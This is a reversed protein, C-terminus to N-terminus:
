ASFSITANCQPPMTDQWWAHTNLTQTHGAYLGCMWWLLQEFLGLKWIWVHGPKQAVNPCCFVRIWSTLRLGQPLIQVWASLSQSRYNGAAHMVVTWHPRCIDTILTIFTITNIDNSFFFILSHPYWTIDPPGVLQSKPSLVNTSGDTHLCFKFFLISYDTCNGLKSLILVNLHPKASITYQM